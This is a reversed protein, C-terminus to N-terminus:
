HSQQREFADNFAVILTDPDAAATIIEDPVPDSPLWTSIPGRKGDSVFCYSVCRVDTTAARSYIYSGVLKLNLTSKTEIDYVLCRM